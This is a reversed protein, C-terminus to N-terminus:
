AEEAWRKDEPDFGRLLPGRRQLLELWLTRLLGPRQPDTAEEPWDEVPGFETLNRFLARHTSDLFDEETLPELGLEAFRVNLYPLLDPGIGLMVLLTAEAETGSGFAELGTRPKEPASALLAASGKRARREHASMRHSTVQELLVREHLRAMRAAQQIYVDREVPDPIAALIPVIERV